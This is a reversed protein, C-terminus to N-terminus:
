RNNDVGSTDEGTGPATQAEVVQGARLGPPPTDIIRDGEHVGSLAAVRGNGLDEGLRVVPLRALGNGDVSFVLPMGGKEIVATRPISLQAPVNAGTDTIQLEAYQGATAATGQPLTLEVRITHRQLDATPHIRYVQAMVPAGKNDLKVPLGMGPALTRVLHVPLDAEVKFLGSQSFDVLPQGPQVTDGEEVYVKDIVSSFPAVSRTDRLRSDIERINAEAQRQSTQAQELRTRVDVLDTYQEFNQDRLGM